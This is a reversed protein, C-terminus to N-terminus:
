IPKMTLGHDQGIVHVEILFEDHLAPAPPIPLIRRSICFQLLQLLVRPVRLFAQPDIRLWHRRPLPPLSGMSPLWLTM